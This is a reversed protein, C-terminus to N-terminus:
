DDQRRRISAGGFMEIWDNGQGVFLRGVFLSQDWYVIVEGDVKPYERDVLFPDISLVGPEGPKVTTMRVQRPLSGLNRTTVGSLLPRSISGDPLEPEPPVATGSCDVEIATGTEVDGGDAIRNYQQGAGTDADGGDVIGNCDAGDALCDPTAALVTELNGGDIIGSCTM